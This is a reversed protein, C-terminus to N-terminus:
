PKKGGLIWPLSHKDRSSPYCTRLWISNLCGPDVRPAEPAARTADKFSRGLRRNEQARERPGRARCQQMCSQSGRAVNHDLQHRCHPTGERCSRNTGRVPAGRCAAIPRCSRSCNSRVSASPPIQSWIMFASPRRDHHAPASSRHMRTRTRWRPAPTAPLLRWSIPEERPTQRALHVRHHVAVAQRDM